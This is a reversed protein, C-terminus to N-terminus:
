LLYPILEQEAFADIKREMDISIQCMITIIKNFSENSNIKFSGDENFCGYEPLKTASFFDPDDVIPHLICTVFDNIQEYLDPPLAVRYREISRFTSCIFESDDIHEFDVCDKM